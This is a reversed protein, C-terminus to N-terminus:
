INTKKQSSKLLFHCTAKGSKIGDSYGHIIISITESNSLNEIANQDDVSIIREKEDSLFHVLQVFQRATLNPDYMPCKLVNKVM